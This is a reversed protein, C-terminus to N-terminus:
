AWNGMQYTLLYTLLKIHPAPIMSISYRSATTFTLEPRRSMLHPVFLEETTVQLYAADDGTEM